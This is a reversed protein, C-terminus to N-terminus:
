DDNSRLPADFSVHPWVEARLKPLNRQVRGLETPDDIGRSTQWAHM